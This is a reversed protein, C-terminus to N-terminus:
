YAVPLSRTKSILYLGFDLTQYADGLPSILANRDSYIESFVFILLFARWLNQLFSEIYSYVISLFVIVVPIM